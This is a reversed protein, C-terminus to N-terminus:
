FRFAFYVAGTIFAYSVLYNWKLPSRFLVLAGASGGLFIAVSKQEAAGFYRFIATVVAGIMICVIVSAILRIVADLKWPKEPLQGTRMLSVLSM